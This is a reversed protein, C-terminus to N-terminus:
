DKNIVKVKIPRLTENVIATFRNKFMQDSTYWFGYDINKNNKDIDINVKYQPIGTNKDIREKVIIGRVLGWSTFVVVSDKIAREKRAGKHRLWIEVM